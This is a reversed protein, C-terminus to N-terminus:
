ARYWSRPSRSGDAAHRCVVMYRRSSRIIAGVIARTAGDIHRIDYHRCCRAKGPWAPWDGCCYRINVVTHSMNDSMFEPTMGFIDCQQWIVRLIRSKRSLHSNNFRVRVSSICSPRATALMARSSGEVRGPSSGEGRARM